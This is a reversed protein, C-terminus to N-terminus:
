NSFVPNIGIYRPKKQNYNIVIKVRKLKRNIVKM